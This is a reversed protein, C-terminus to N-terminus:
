APNQGTPAGESAVFGRLFARTRPLNQLASGDLFQALTTPPNRLRGCHTRAATCCRIPNEDALRMIFDDPHVAEIGYPRLLNDPFDRLNFTFIMVAEGHIAAALVHRDGEDPLVVSPIIGEYGEVLCDPVARNM